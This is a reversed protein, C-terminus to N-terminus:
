EATGTGLLRDALGDELANMRARTREDAKADGRVREADSLVLLGVVMALGDTNSVGDVWRRDSLDITVKSGLAKRVRQVDNAHARRLAWHVLMTLLQPKPPTDASAILQDVVRRLEKERRAREKREAEQQDARAEADPGQRPVVDYLDPVGGRDWPDLVAVLRGEAEPSEEDVLHRWDDHGQFAAGREVVEIDRERAWARQAELEDEREKARLVKAIAARAEAPSIVGVEADKVAGAEAQTEATVEAVWRHQLQPELKAIENAAVDVTLRGSVVLDLAAPDMGLLALRRHVHPQSVGLRRSIERQALGQEILAQYAVAEEVPSLAQRQLNELLQVPLRDEAITSRVVAPISELGARVAATHRREGMVLVYRVGEPLDEGDDAPRVTVPQLVGYQEISAVLGDLGALDKRPNAPDPAIAGVPLAVLVGTDTRVQDVEASAAAVEAAVDQEHQALRRRAGEGM